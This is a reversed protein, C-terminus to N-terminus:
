RGLHDRLFGLAEAAWSAQRAVTDETEADPRLLSWRLPEDMRRLMVSLALDFAARAEPNLPRASGALTRGTAALLSLRLRPAHRFRSTALLSLARASAGIMAMATDRSDALPGADDPLAPRSFLPLDAVAPQDAELLAGVVFPPSGGAHDDAFRLASRVVLARSILRMPPSPPLLALAARLDGSSQRLPELINQGPHPTVSGDAHVVVGPLLLLDATKPATLDRAVDLAFPAPRDGPALVWIWAGRAHALARNRATARSCPAMRLVRLRPDAPLVARDDPHAGHDALM